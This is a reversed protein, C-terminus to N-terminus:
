IKFGNITNIVTEDYIDSGVKAAEVLTGDNKIAYANFETVYTEIQDKFKDDTYNDKILGPEIGLDAKVSYLKFIIHRIYIYFKAYTVNNEQTILMDADRLVELFTNYLKVVTNANTTDLIKVDDKNTFKGFVKLLEEVIGNLETMGTGPGTAGPSSM